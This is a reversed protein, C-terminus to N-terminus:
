PLTAGWSLGAHAGALFVLASGDISTELHEPSDTGLWLTHGHATSEVILHKVLHTGVKGECDKIWLVGKILQTGFLRLPCNRGGFQLEFLVGVTQTGEVVTKNSEILIEGNTQLQGKSQNSAVTGTAAGPSNVVCDLLASGDPEEVVTCGTYVLQLGSSIGGGGVLKANSLTLGTCLVGISLSFLKTLLTSDTKPEIEGVISANLDKATKVAGGSNLILWEAASASDAAFAMLSLAMVCLGLLGLKSRSM